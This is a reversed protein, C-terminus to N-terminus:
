KVGLNQNLFTFAEEYVSLLKEYRIEKNSMLLKELRNAEEWLLPLCVTAASNKVSRIFRLHEDPDSEKRMTELRELQAPYFRVWMSCISRVLNKDNKANRMAKRTDFIKNPAGGGTRTDYFEGGQFIKNGQTRLALHTAKVAINADRPFNDMTSINFYRLVEMDSQIFDEGALIISVPKTGQRDLYRIRTAAYTIDFDELVRLFVVSYGHNDVNLAQFIEVASSMLTAKINAKSFVREWEPDIAKAGICDGLIISIQGHTALPTPLPLIHEVSQTIEQQTPVQTNTNSNQASQAQNRVFSVSEANKTRVTEEDVLKMQGTIVFRAGNKNNQPLAVSGNVLVALENLPTLDFAPRIGQKSKESYKKSKWFNKNNSTIYGRSTDEIEVILHIPIHNLDQVKLNSSMNLTSRVRVTLHGKETHFASNKLIRIIIQRLHFADGMLYTPVSNDIELKLEVGNEQCRASFMETCQKFFTDVHFIEEQSQLNVSGGGLSLRNASNLLDQNIGQLTHLFELKEPNDATNEKADNIIRAVNALVVEMEQSMNDIMNQSYELNAGQNKQIRWLRIMFLYFLIIAITGIALSLFLFRIRETRQHLVFKAPNTDVVVAGILTGPSANIHCTICSNQAFIPRIYNYLAKKENFEFNDQRNENAMLMLSANESTNPINERNMPSNSVFSINVGNQFENELKKALEIPVAMSLAQGFSNTTKASQPLSPAFSSNNSVYVNQKQEFWDFIELTQQGVHRSNAHIEQEVIESHSTYYSYTYLVFAIWVLTIGTSILIYKKLSRIM